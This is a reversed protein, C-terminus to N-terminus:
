MLLALIAQARPVIVVDKVTKFLLIYPKQVLKYMSISSVWYIYYAKNWLKGAKNEIIYYSMWLVMGAMGNSLQM